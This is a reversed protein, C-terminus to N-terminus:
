QRAFSPEKARMAYYHQKDLYMRDDAMKMVNDPDSEDSSALGISIRIPINIHKGESPTLLV